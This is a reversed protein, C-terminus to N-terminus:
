PGPSGGRDLMAMRRLLRRRLFPVATALSLLRFGLKPFRGRGLLLVRTLRDTFRNVGQVIQKRRRTGYSALPGPDGADLAELLARTLACADQIGSNMGQGGVPSNLHAADGALVTRGAAFRSAVRRHLRFESKWVTRYRDAHLLAPVARDIREELPLEDDASFPLILRWLRGADGSDGFRLGMALRDRSSIRPYREPGGGPVRVDALAARMGYTVGPFDAGICGRLTSHAGDCGAVFAARLEGQGDDGRFAVRVRHGDGQEVGVVTTDFRVESSPEREVAELLLEETVSQPLILLHPYDTERSLEGLSVRFLRRDRDADWLEIEPLITGRELFREVVGLEALVEQTRPWVAPARSHEATSAEKELVRVSRGARALGLALSLGVPGAGVVAVDPEASGGSVAGGTTLEAGDGAPPLGPLEGEPPM